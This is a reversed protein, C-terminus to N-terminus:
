QKDEKKIIKGGFTKIPSQEKSIVQKAEIAMIREEHDNVKTLLVKLDYNMAKDILFKLLMGYDSCFEEDAIAMFIDRTGKPVRSIYLSNKNERLKKALVMAPNTGESSNNESEM